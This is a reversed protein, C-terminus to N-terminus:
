ALDMAHNCELYFHVDKLSVPDGSLLITKVHIIRTGWIRRRTVVGVTIHGSLLPLFVSLIVLYLM